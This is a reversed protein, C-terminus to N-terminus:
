KKLPIVGTQIWESLTQEAEEKSYCTRKPGKKYCIMYTGNKRKYISGSGSKRNNRITSKQGTRNFLSLAKNAEEVTTFSGIYTRTPEPGKVVYVKKRKEYSVYGPRKRRKCHSDSIKQKTENFHKYGRIGHGGDCLNYGNPVKTDFHKIFQTEWEDLYKENCYLLIEFKMNKWGYKNIANKLYICNSKRSRHHYIRRKLNITQGIYMKGSPSTISYICPKM